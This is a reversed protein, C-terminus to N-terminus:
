NKMGAHWKFLISFDRKSARELDKDFLGSFREKM